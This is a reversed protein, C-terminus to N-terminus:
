ERALEESRGHRRRRRRHQDAIAGDGRQSGRRDGGEELGGRTRVGGCAAKEPPGAVQEAEGVGRAEEGV